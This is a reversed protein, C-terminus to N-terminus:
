VRGAEVVLGHRYGLSDFLRKETEDGIFGTILLQGDTVHVEFESWPEDVLKEFSRYRETLFLVRQNASGRWLLPGRLERVFEGDVLVDICALLDHWERKGSGIIEEYTYGTYCM